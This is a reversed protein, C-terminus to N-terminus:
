VLSFSDLDADREVLRRRGDAYRKDTVTWAAAGGIGLRKWDRQVLAFRLLNNIVHTQDVEYQSALAEVTGALKGDLKGDLRFTKVANAARWAAQREAASAHKAPRGRKKAQPLPGVFAEISM